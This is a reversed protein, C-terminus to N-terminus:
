VKCLVRRLAGLLTAANHFLGADQHVGAQQNAQIPKITPGATGYGFSPLTIPTGQGEPHELLQNRVISIERCEVSGLGPLQKLVKLLRHCHRYFAEADERLANEEPDARDNPTGLPINITSASHAVRPEAHRTFWSALTPDVKARDRLLPLIDEFPPLRKEARDTLEENRKGIRKLLPDLRRLLDRAESVLHEQILSREALKEAVLREFCELISEFKQPAAAM